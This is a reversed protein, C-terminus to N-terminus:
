SRKAAETALQVRSAVGVKAYVHTLHAQVTRPSIFLRAAIEKNPLGEGVLRVVELEAPTLSAWGASPRKREGRGRQAYAVADDLSLAAGEAWAADFAEDGMSERLRAVMAEYWDRYIGFRVYGVQDRHRQTAALLRVAEADSEAAAALAALLELTDCLWAQDGFEHRVKLAERALDEARDHAGEALAVRAGATLAWGQQWQLENRTNGLAEEAHLRAGDLDGAALTAEAMLATAVGGTGFGSHMWAERLLRMAEAAEGAALAAVGGFFRSFGQM